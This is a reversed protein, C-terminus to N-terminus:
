IWQQLGKQMKSFLVHGCIMELEYGVQFSAGRQTMCESDFMTLKLDAGSLAKFQGFISYTCEAKYGHHLLQVIRFSERSNVCGVLSCKYCLLIM